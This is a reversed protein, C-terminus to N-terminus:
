GATRGKLWDNYGKAAERISPSEIEKSAVYALLEDHIQNIKKFAVGELVALNEELPIRQANIDSTIKQFEPISDVLDMYDAMGLFFEKPTDISIFSNYFRELVQLKDM